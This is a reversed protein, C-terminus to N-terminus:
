PCTEDMWRKGAWAFGPDNLHNRCQWKWCPYIHYYLWTNTLIWSPGYCFKNLDWDYINVSTKGNENRFCTQFCEPLSHMQESVKRDRPVPEKPSRTVLADGIDQDSDAPAGRMFDALFEAAASTNLGEMANYLVLAAADIEAPNINVPVYGPSSTVNATPLSAGMRLLALLSTITALHM